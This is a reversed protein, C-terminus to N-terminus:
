RSCCGLFVGGPTPCCDGELKLSACSPNSDCSKESETVEKSQGPPVVADRACCGLYDGNPTPCCDGNLNLHKCGSNLFCSQSYDVGDKTVPVEIDPESDSSRTAIWYYIQSLSLGEDLQGSELSRAQKWAEGYDIIAHDCVFFGKWHMDITEYIHSIVNEYEGEVYNRDFLDETIATIPIMQIGHVYYAESGFWTRSNVDIGGLNGVMYNKAFTEDYVSSNPGTHYYMKTARIETALLLRSFFNMVLNGRVLSWLYCAYYCNIAESSSEQNKGNGQSFLGSAWSHGDYWSKYRSVPFLSSDADYNAVDAVLADVASGYQV